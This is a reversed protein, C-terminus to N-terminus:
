VIDMAWHPTKVPKGSDDLGRLDRMFSVVRGKGRPQTDRLTRTIDPVCRAFTTCATFTTEFTLLKEFAEEYLFMNVDMHMRGDHLLMASGGGWIATILTGEGFDAFTEYEVEQDDVVSKLSRELLSKAKEANMADARKETMEFQFIVQLGLPLQSNWHELQSAQDFDADTFNGDTNIPDQVIFGEYPCGRVNQIEGVLQTRAETRNVFEVLREAFNFDGSSAISVLFSTSSSNFFVESRFSPDQPFIHTRFKDVFARRWDESLDILPATVTMNEQFFINQNVTSVSIRDVIQAMSHTASPDVVISRIRGMKSVNEKLTNWTELECDGMRRLGDPMFEFNEIGDCSNLVLVNSVQELKKVAEASKCSPENGCLVAVTYGEGDTVIGQSEEVAILAAEMDLPEGFTKAAEEADLEDCSKLKPGRNKEDEEWTDLGFMGGTVVRYSSSSQGDMKSGVAEILAKKATEQKGYSSWLLFDFGVYKHEPWLRSIVYGEKLVTVLVNGDATKPEFSKVVHLDQQRLANEVVERTKVVSSLDITADEAEIIMM